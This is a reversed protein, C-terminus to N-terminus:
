YGGTKRWATANLGILIPAGLGLCFVTLPFFSTTRIDEMGDFGAASLAQSFDGYDAGFSFLLSMIGSACLVGGIMWFVTRAM